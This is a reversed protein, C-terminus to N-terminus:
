HHQHRKLKNRANLMSLVLLGAAGYGVWSAIEAGRPDGRATLVLYFAGATIGTMTYILQHGLTYLLRTNEDLGRFRVELEGRQARAMFRKVDGPTSIATMMFDKGADMALSSWDRNKGLVFEELYPRIVSMPSMDPDLETCLGM